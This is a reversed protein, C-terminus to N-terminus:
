DVIETYAFEGDSGSKELLNQLLTWANPQKETIRVRFMQESGVTGDYPEPVYFTVEYGEYEYDEGFIGDCNGIAVDSLLEAALWQANAADLEIYEEETWTYAMSASTLNMDMMTEYVIKTDENLAALQTACARMTESSGYPLVRYRRQVKEGDSMTYTIRLRYSATYDENVELYQEDILAEHIKLVAEIQADDLITLRQTDMRLEVKEVEQADPLSHVIGFADVRFCGLLAVLLTVTLGLGLFSSGRFVRLSKKLLMEAGFWGLFAGISLYIGTVIFGIATTPEYEFELMASLVVCVMLASLVSLLLRCIPQAARYVIIEGSMEMRRHRYLRWAFWLLVLAVALPILLYGWQISLKFFFDGESGVYSSTTIFGGMSLLWVPTVWLSLMDRNVIGVLLPEVITGGTWDILVFMCNLLIYVGAAAVTKGSLQMAFVAICFFMVFELAFILTALWLYGIALIGAKICMLTCLSSVAVLPVIGFALGTLVGTGFMERRSIPLASLMYASRTKHLIGFGAAACLGAYIVGVWCGMIAFAQVLDAGVSSAIGALTEPVVTRYVYNDTASRTITTLAVLLVLTYLGWLPFFRSINKRLLTRNCFSARSTM